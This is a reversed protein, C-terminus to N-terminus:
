QTEAVTNVKNSTQIFNATSIYPLILILDHNACNKTTEFRKYSCLVHRSLQLLKFVVPVLQTFCFFSVRYCGFRWRHQGIRFSENVSTLQDSPKQFLNSCNEFIWDYFNVTRLRPRWNVLSRIWFVFHGDM